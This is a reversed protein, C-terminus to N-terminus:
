NDGKRFPVIQVEDAPVLHPDIRWEPRKKAEPWVEDMTDGDYLIGDKMVYRIERSNHIDDLPNKNLVILDAIKGPEISGLDAQMGLAEAGNITAVRLAELNTLGGMQLAWLEDHAGTAVIDGHSGMALKGGEHLIRAALQCAYLLQQYRRDSEPINEFTPLAQIGDTFRNRKADSKSWYRSTFYSEPGPCHVITPTLYTGCSAWLSVVDNYVSEYGYRLQHEMGSSGDKLMAVQGSM